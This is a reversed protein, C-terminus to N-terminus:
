SGDFVAGNGVRGPSGSEAGVSVGDYGNASSDAFATQGYDEEFEFQLTPATSSYLTQVDSSSLARGYIRLDDLYGILGNGFLLQAASGPTTPSTWDASTVKQGNIYIGDTNGNSDYVAVVHAWE